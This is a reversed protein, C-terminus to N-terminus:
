PVCLPDPPVRCASLRLRTPHLRPFSVPFSPKDVAYMNEYKSWSVRCLRPFFPAVDRFRASGADEQGRSRRRKGALRGLPPPRSGAGGEGRPSHQQGAPRPSVGKDRDGGGARVRSRAAPAMGPDRTLVDVLYSILRALAYVVSENSKHTRYAGDFRTAWEGSALTQLLSSFPGPTGYPSDRTEPDYFTRIILELYSLGTVVDGSVRSEIAQEISRLAQPPPSPPPPPLRRCRLFYPAGAAALLPLRCPPSPCAM